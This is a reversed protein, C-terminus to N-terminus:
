PVKKVVQVYHAYFACTNESFFQGCNKRCLTASDLQVRICINIEVIHAHNANTM